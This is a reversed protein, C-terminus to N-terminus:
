EHSQKGGIGSPINWTVPLPADPYVLRNFENGNNKKFFYLDAFDMLAVWDELMQAHGGVRWHLGINNEVGLWAYVQKAARHTLETGLPNAWNDRTANADHLGRPALIVKNFHADFPIVKDNNAFEYWPPAWWYPRREESVQMDQQKSNEEFIRVSATGGLGSCNPGCVAIREDFIAGALAAKGGRSHGTVVIKALDISDMKEFADIVLQYCWGWVAIAGWTNEPYLDYVGGTRIFDKQDKAFDERAYKAVAYGMEFAKTLIDDKETIGRDNKIVVPFKGPKNPRYLSCHLTVSKGNRTVTVNFLDLIGKGDLIKESSVKELSTEPKPPITGYQYHILMAKLYERQAPWEEKTQVLTGDPKMFPNQLGKTVPLDAVDPFKYETQAAFASQCLGFALMLTLALMIKAGCKYHTSKNKM